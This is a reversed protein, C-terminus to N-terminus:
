LKMDEKFIITKGKKLLPVSEKTALISQATNKNNIILMGDCERAIFAILGTAMNRTPTIHPREKM